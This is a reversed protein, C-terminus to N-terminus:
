PQFDKHIRKLNRNHCPLQNNLLVDELKFCQRKKV